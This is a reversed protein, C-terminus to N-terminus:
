SIFSQCSTGHEGLTDTRLAQVVQPIYFFTVDVPHEELVRMAYQLLIPDNDYLPLFYTLATM